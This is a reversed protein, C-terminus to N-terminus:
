FQRIIWCLLEEQHNCTHISRIYEFLDKVFGTLLIPRAKGRYSSENFKRLVKIAGNKTKAGTSVKKKKGRDDRYWIYYIGNRKCLFM